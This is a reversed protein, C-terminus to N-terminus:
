LVSTKVSESQQASEWSWLSNWGDIASLLSGDLGTLFLRDLLPSVRLGGILPDPCPGSPSSRDRICM